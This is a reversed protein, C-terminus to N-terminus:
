SQIEPDRFARRKGVGPSGFRLTDPRARAEAILDALTAVGAAKGAVLVYGQRTLPAIAIFDNVPDYPADQRLV